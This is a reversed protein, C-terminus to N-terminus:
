GLFSSLSVVWRLFVCYGLYRMRSGLSLSLLGVFAIM